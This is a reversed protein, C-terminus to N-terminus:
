LLLLRLKDLVDNTGIISFMLTIAIGFVTVALQLKTCRKGAKKKEEMLKRYRTTDGEIDEIIREIDKRRYEDITTM